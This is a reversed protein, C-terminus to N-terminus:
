TRSFSVGALGAIGTGALSAATSDNIGGLAYVPSASRRVMSALRLPGLPPGASPSASPFIASLIVADLGPARLARASHAAATVLRGHRRLTPALYALREPLHVGHAGIRAALRYDAGILLRFGRRRALKLLRRAMIEADPAGFARYVLATGPGLRAALVEVDGTRVPDTFVLLPPLGKGLGRGRGLCAATRTV